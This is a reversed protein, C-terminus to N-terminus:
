QSSTIIEKIGIRINCEIILIIYRFFTLHVGTVNTNHSFHLSNSVLHNIQIFKTSFHHHRSCRCGSFEIVQIIIIIIQATVCIGVRGLIIIYDNSAIIIQLFCFFVSICMDSGYIVIIQTTIRICIRGSKVFHNISAVIIKSFQFCVFFIIRNVFAM